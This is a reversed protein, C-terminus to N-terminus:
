YYKIFYLDQPIQGISPRKSFPKFDAFFGSQISCLLEALGMTVQLKTSLASVQESRLFM